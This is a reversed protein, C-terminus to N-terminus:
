EEPEPYLEFFLSVARDFSMQKQQWEVKRGRKKRVSYRLENKAVHARKDVHTRLVDRITNLIHAYKAKSMKM